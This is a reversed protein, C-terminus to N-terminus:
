KKGKKFFLGCFVFIYLGCFVCFVRFVCISSQPTAGSRLVLVCFFLSFFSRHGETHETPERKYKYMSM